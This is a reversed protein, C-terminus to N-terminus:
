GHVPYGIRAVNFLFSFIMCLAVAILRARQKQGALEADDLDKKLKRQLRRVSFVYVLNTVPLFLLAALLLVWFWFIVVPSM